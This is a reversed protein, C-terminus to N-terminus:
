MKKSVPIKQLNMEKDENAESYHKSIMPGLPLAGASVGGYWWSALLPYKGQFSKGWARGSGEPYTGPLKRLPFLKPVMIANEEKM